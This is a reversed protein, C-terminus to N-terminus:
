FSSNNQVYVANWFSWVDEHTYIEDMIPELALYRYFFFHPGPKEEPGEGFQCSGLGPFSQM